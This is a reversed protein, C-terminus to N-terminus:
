YRYCQFNLQAKIEIVRSEFVNLVMEKEKSRALLQSNPMVAILRPVDMLSKGIYKNILSNWARLPHLRRVLM